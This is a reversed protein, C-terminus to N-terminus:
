QANTNSTSWVHAGPKRVFIWEGTKPNVLQGCRIVRDLLRKTMHVDALCYDILAGVNGRQYNIPALAGHGKKSLRFNAYCVADLGFGGHTRPDFSPGLGAGRWIEALLDYSKEVHIIIDNAALVADDFRLNNFGVVVDHAAVLTAFDSLNDRCFVRARDKVYDFVCVCAIGMGKYDAWGEAYTIGDERSGDRPPIANAIEIDYILM